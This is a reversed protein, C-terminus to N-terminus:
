SQVGRGKRTSRTGLVRLPLSGNCVLDDRRERFSQREAMKAGWAPMAREGITRAFGDPAHAANSETMLKHYRPSRAAAAFTEFGAKRRFLGFMM